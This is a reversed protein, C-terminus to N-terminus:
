YLYIIDQSKYSMFCHPCLNSSKLILVTDKWSKVDGQFGMGKKQNGNIM